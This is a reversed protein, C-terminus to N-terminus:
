EPMARTGAGAAVTGARRRRTPPPTAELELLERLMKRYLAQAGKSPLPAGTKAAAVFELLGGKQTRSYGVLPRLRRYLELMDVEAFALEPNTKLTKRPAAM